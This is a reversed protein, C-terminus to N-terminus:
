RQIRYLTLPKWGAEGLDFLKIPKLSQMFASDNYGGMLRFREDLMTQTDVIYMINKSDLYAPLTNAIIYPYVDNNVLGDINIVHGGQYYGIIGANWAALNGSVPHDHLYKGAALM